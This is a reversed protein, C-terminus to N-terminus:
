QVNGTTTWLVPQGGWYRVPFPFSKDSISKKHSYFNLSQKLKLDAEGAEKNATIGTTTPTDASQWLALQCPGKTQDAKIFNIGVNEASNKM